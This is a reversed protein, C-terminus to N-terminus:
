RAYPDAADRLGDGLFNYMLVTIVVFICPILLWPQCAVVQFNQADQLLTGWSVAPPQIGLGLFSLATEGLIMGPISLTVSVLIYSTFSPLLHRFIIRYESAGSVRAAIVFDEERLSLFKGRVVRALSTWGIFSLIVTITFYRMIISWNQPIAAALGMWLPISPLSALLDVTRMIFNDLAGGLYGALGGFILGLVTSLCVGVLGITLSIRSGYLIRSFLDRGLRDTGFIFLPAGQEAGFLHLNSTFLGWLRYEGSRVFFSVRYKKERDVVYKKMLTEPDRVSKLGYVYPSIRFGNSTDVLHIWNPPANLYESFAETPNYPSFFECFLALIYLITLVYIASLALKHRRFKWWIIKWQSALYWEESKLEQKTWVKM